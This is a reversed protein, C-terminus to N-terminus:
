HSSWGDRSLQYRIFAPSPGPYQYYQVEMNSTGALQDPAADSAARSQGAQIGWDFRSVRRAAAVSTLRM